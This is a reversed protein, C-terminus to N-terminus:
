HRCLCFIIPLFLAVVVTVPWFWSEDSDYPSRIRPGSTKKFKRTTDADEIDGEDEAVEEPQHIPPLTPIDLPLVVELSLDCKIYKIAM